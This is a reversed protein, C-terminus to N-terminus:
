AHTLKQYIQENNLSRISKSLNFGVLVWLLLFNVDAAPTRAWYMVILHSLIVYSFIKTLKNRTRFSGLYMAYGIISLIFILYILGGKLIIQYFGNEISDRGGFEKDYKPAFNPTSYKGELGRGTWIDPKIDNFFDETLLSRSDELFINKVDNIQFNYKNPLLYLSATYLIKPSIIMITVFSFILIVLTIYGKSLKNTSFFLVGSFCIIIFLMDERKNVSFAILFYVILGLILLKRNFTKNYFNYVLFIVPVSYLFAGSFRRISIITFYHVFLLIIGIYIGWKIQRQMVHLINFLAFENRVNLIILPLLWSSFGYINFLIYYNLGFISSTSKYYVLLFTLFAYVIVIVEIKGIRKFSSLFQNVLIIIVVPSIIYSAYSLKSNFILAMELFLCNLPILWLLFTLSRNYHNPIKITQNM